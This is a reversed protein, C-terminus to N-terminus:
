QPGQEHPLDMHFISLPMSLLAHHCSAQVGRLSNLPYRRLVLEADHLIKHPVAHPPHKM